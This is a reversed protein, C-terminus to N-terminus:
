VLRPLYDDHAPEVRADMPLILLRNLFSSQRTVGPLSSSPQIV